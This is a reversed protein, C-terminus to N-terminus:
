IMFEGIVMEICMILKVVFYSALLVRFYISESIRSICPKVYYITVPYELRDIIENDYTVKIQILNLLIVCEGHHVNCSYILHNISFLIFIIQIIKSFIKRKVM